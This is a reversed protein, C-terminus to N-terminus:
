DTVVVRYYKAEGATPSNRIIEIIDSSKAKLLKISPDKSSIRPLLSKTIKYKSLLEIAEEDNLIRHQPVLVHDFLTTKKGEGGEKVTKERQVKNKRSDEGKKTQKKTTM